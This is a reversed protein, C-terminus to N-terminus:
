PTSKVPPSDALAEKIAEQGIYVFDPKGEHPSLHNHYADFARAVDLMLNAIESDRPVGGAVAPTHVRLSLCISLYADASLAYLGLVPALARVVEDARAERAAPSDDNPIFRGGTTRVFAQKTLTM